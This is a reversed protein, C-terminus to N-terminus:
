QPLAFVYVMNSGAPQDLDPRLQVPGTNYGGGAAVAIYQRGGVSFTVPAGFVQSGLRTQWLVKGDSQDLARLYRDMSGNFLLVAGDVPNAFAGGLVLEGRRAAKWAEALHESRFKARKTVYDGSAEYFLLYHM